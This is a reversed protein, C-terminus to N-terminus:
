QLAVTAMQAASSLQGITLVVPQPGSSLGSPVVANVQFIGWPQFPATGYYLLTAPAGGITLSVSSGLYLTPLVSVSGDQVANGWLPGVNAYLVIVSGATAPNAVGNPVCGQANCNAIAPPRNGTSPGTFIGVSNDAEQVSFANSVQEQTSQPYRTVIVSVSGQSALEYPAIVTIVGPSTSVLSGPIGNFTVTTFGLGTPYQGGEDFTASLNSGLNTGRIAVLTGPTIVPASSAADVVSGIAPMGPPSITLTVLAFDTNGPTQDVTTFYIGINKYTGPAANGVTYPNVAVTVMAPTTGSSPSVVFLNSATDINSLKYKINANPNGPCLATIGVEVAGYNGVLGTSLSYNRPAVGILCQATGCTTLVCLAFVRHLM